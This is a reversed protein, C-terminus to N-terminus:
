KVQINEHTRKSKSLSLHTTKLHKTNQTPITGSRDSSQFPYKQPHKPKRHSWHEQYNQGRQKPNHEQKYNKKEGHKQKNGM